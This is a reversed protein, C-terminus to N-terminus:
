GVAVLAMVGGCVVVLGGVIALFVLARQQPTFGHWPDRGDDVVGETAAALYQEEILHEDCEFCYDSIPYRTKCRPCVMPATSAGPQHRAEERIRARRRGNIEDQKDLAAPNEPARLGGRFPINKSPM